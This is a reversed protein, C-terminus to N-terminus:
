EKQKKNAGEDKEESKRKREREREREEMKKKAEVRFSDPTDGILESEWEMGRWKPRGDPIDVLRQEYFMHCKPKFKEKAGPDKSFDILSPFLLIM